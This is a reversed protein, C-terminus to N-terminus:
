EAAKKLKKKAPKTQIVEGAAIEYITVEGGVRVMRKGVTPFDVVDLKATEGGMLYVLDGDGVNKLHHTIQPAPFAMFDGAGVPVEEAGILALGEGMLVYLWEEERHHAHPLYSEKGPPIRAIAVGTRKLGLAKGLQVGILESDPNWPHSVREQRAGIESARLLHAGGTQKAGAKAAPKGAAKAEVPKDKKAKKAM